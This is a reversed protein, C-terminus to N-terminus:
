NASGELQTELWQFYRQKSRKAEARLSDERSPESPETLHVAHVNDVIAERWRSHERLDLLIRLVTSVALQKTGYQWRCFSFRNQEAGFHVASCLILM